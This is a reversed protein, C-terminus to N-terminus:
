PRIEVGVAQSIPSVKKKLRRALAFWFAKLLYLQEPFPMEVFLFEGLSTFVCYWFCSNVFFLFYMILPFYQRENSQQSTVFSTFEEGPQMAVLRLLLELRFSIEM